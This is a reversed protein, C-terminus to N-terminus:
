ETAPGPLVLPDIDGITEISARGGIDDDPLPNDTGVVQMLCSIAELSYDNKLQGCLRNNLVEWWYRHVSLDAADLYGVAQQRLKRYDPIEKDTIGSKYRYHFFLNITHGGQNPTKLGIVQFMFDRRAHDGATPSNEVRGSRSGIVIGSSFLVGAVVILGAAVVVIRRTKV